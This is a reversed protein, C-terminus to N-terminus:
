FAEWNGDYDWTKEVKLYNESRMWEPPEHYSAFNGGSWDAHYNEADPYYFFNHQMALLTTRTISTPDRPELNKVLAHIWNNKRTYPCVAICVRCGKAGESPGQNWFRWCSDQNFDWKRFGREVTDPADADTISGSPCSDACIKCDECFHSMKLDVPKDAELDLNTIVAALRINPGVEPTMLIGNRANEGLGAQIAIPPLIIEYDIGPWQPRAAYGLEGLFASMLGAATSARFYAEKSTSYGVAAYMPDWNMPVGFVIVNKWHAPIEDGWEKMGRMMGKFVFAPDLKAIGVHTMGYKNAMQKILKSAHAPSQFEVPERKVWKFDDQDPHGQPKPPFNSTMLGKHWSADYAWALAFRDRHKEKNDDHIKHASFSQLMEQWRDPYQAYYARVRSDPFNQWGQAPDWGEKIAHAIAGARNFLFDGWDPRIVDGVPKLSPAIEVQFPQRNIFMDAGAETRGWGVNADPDRGLVFGAAAAGGLTAGTAALGGMKLFTRRSADNVGESLRKKTM